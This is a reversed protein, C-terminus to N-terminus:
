SNALVAEIELSLNVKDNYGKIGNAEIGKRNPCKEARITFKVPQTPRGRRDWTSAAVVRIGVWAACTTRITATISACPTREVTTSLMGDLWVLASEPLRTLPTASTAKM